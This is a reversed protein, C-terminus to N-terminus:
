EKKVRKKLYIYDISRYMTMRYNAGLGTSHEYSAERAVAAFPEWGDDLLSQEEGARVSRIDYKM